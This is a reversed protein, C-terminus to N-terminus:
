RFNVYDATVGLQSRRSWFYWYATASSRPASHLLAPLHWDAGVDNVKERRPHRKDHFHIAATV